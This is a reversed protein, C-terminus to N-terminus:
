VLGLDGLQAGPAPGPFDFSGLGLIDDLVDGDRDSEPGWESTATPLAHYARSPNVHGELRELLACVPPTSVIELSYGLLKIEDALTALDRADELGVVGGAGAGAGAGDAEEVGFEAYARITAWHVPSYHIPALYRMGRALLHLGQLALEHARREHETAYGWSEAASAAFTNKTNTSPASRRERLASYFPLVLGSFGFVNGYGYARALMEGAGDPEHSDALVADIRALTLTLVAHMTTFARLLREVDPEAVPNARAYDGIVTDYLQRALTTVHFTYPTMSAWPVGVPSLDSQISALLSDMSPQEAGCLLMQDQPSVLLPATNRISILAEVMLFGAWGNTTSSPEGRWSPALSRVHSIYATAWPRGASGLDNQETLDLLFCSAANENSPHLIVGLDWAAKLAQARIARFVPGRRVGCALLESSSSFFDHDLFGEPRPGPGLISPHFSFLAALALSCLALVRAEPHLLDLNFSVARLDARISTLGILPHSFQPNLTLGEFCHSVFEPSLEPCESSTGFDPGPHLLLTPAPPTSQHPRSTSAVSLSPKPQGKRPRGRPIPTTTCVADKEVCRLCPRGGPQPHCLVRHFKCRDCAPPKKPKGQTSSSASAM